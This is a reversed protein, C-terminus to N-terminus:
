VESIKSLLAELQIRENAGEIIRMDFDAMILIVEELQKSLPRDGSTIRDHIMDIVEYGTFGSDATLAEIM